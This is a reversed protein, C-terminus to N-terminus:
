IDKLILEIRQQKIKNPGFGKGVSSVVLVDEYGDVFEVGMFKTPEVKAVFSYKSAHREILEKYWKPCFIRVDDVRYNNINFYDIAKSLQHFAVDPPLIRYSNRCITAIEKLTKSIVNYLTPHTKKFAQFDKNIMGERFHKEFIAELKKDDIM